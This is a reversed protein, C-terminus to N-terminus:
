VVKKFKELYIKYCLWGAGVGIIIDLLRGLGGFLSTLLNANFLGFIGWLIGGALVVYFAIQSYLDMEKLM